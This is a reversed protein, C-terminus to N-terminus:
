TMKQAHSKMNENNEIKKSKQNAACLMESLDFVNYNWCIAEGTLEKLKAAQLENDM